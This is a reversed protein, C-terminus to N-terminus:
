SGLRRIRGREDALALTFFGADRIADHAQKWSWHLREVLHESLQATTAFRPALEAVFDRRDRDSLGEALSTAPAASRAASATASPPEGDGPDASSTRSSAGARRAPRGAGRARTLTTRRPCVAARRIGHAILARNNHAIDAVAVARVGIVAGTRPNVLRERALFGNARIQADPPEVFVVIREGDRTEEYADVFRPATAVIYKNIEDERAHDVVRQWARRGLMPLHRMASAHEATPDLPDM